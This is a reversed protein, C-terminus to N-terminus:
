NSNENVDDGLIILGLEHLWQKFQADDMNELEEKLNTVYLLADNDQQSNSIKNNCYTLLTQKAEVLNNCNNIDSLYIIDIINSSIDSRNSIHYNLYDQWLYSYSTILIYDKFEAYKGMTQTRGIAKSCVIIKKGEFPNYNIDFITQFVFNINEIEDTTESLNEKIPVYPSHDYPFYNIINYENKDYRAINGGIITLSDSEGTYQEGSKELNTIIDYPANINVCFETKKIKNYPNYGYNNNKIEPNYFYITKEGAMPYWPFYGPLQVAQLNSFFINHYGKYSFSIKADYIPESFNLYVLDGEQKYNLDQNSTIKQIKYRHYLTFVFNDKKTDSHLHVSGDVNLMLDLNLNLHYDTFTYNVNKTILLEKNEFIESYYNYDEASGNWKEDLRFSNQPFYILSFSIFLILSSLIIKKIRNKRINIIFLCFIFALIWFAVCAIKYPENQMGYLSDIAWISNQYFLSFPLHIFDILKDIPFNPQSSWKLYDMYPSLLIISVFLLPLSLKSSKITSIITTIILAVFQPFLVNLPYQTIMINCFMDYESTKITNAFLFFLIYLNYIILLTFLFLFSYLIYSFQNQSISNITEEIQSTYAKRLFLYSIVIFIITEYIICRVIFSFTFYVESPVSLYFTLGITTSLIMIAFLLCLIKNKFFLKFHQFLMKRVM